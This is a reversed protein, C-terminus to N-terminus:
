ENIHIREMEVDYYNSLYQKLENIENLPLVEKTEKDTNAVKKSIDINIENIEEINSKLKKNNEAEKIKSTQMYIYNIKGYDENNQTEINIKLDNTCYGKEIFKQKIDEKVKEIYTDEIYKSTDISITNFKFSDIKNETKKVIYDLNINNNTVRSIIPNVIVFLIYIGIVTKVYKKINGEPLIIEIIGSIIVALIIGKAWSNIVNIM